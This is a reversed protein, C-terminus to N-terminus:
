SSPTASPAGAKDYYIIVTVERNGLTHRQEHREKNPDAEATKRSFHAGESSHKRKKRGPVLVFVTTGARKFEGGPPNPDVLMEPPIVLAVM